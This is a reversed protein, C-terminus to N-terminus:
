VMGGLKKRVGPFWHYLGLVSTATFGLQMVVLGWADTLLGYGIWCLNSALFAVFGYGSHRNNFALLAAGLLGSFCGLWELLTSM